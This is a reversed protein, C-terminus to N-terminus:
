PMIPLRYVLISNNNAQCHYYQQITALDALVLRGVLILIRLLCMEMRNIKVALCRSSIIEMIDSM